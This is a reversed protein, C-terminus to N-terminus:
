RPVEERGPAPAPAPRSVRGPPTVPSAQRSSPLTTWADEELEPEPRYRPLPPDDEDHYRVRVVRRASIAHVALMVAACACGVLAVAGACRLVTVIESSGQRGHGAGTLLLGLMVGAAVALAQIGYGKM